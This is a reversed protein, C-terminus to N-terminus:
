RDSTGSLTAATEIPLRRQSGSTDIVFVIERPVIQAPKVKKPPQLILTFFGGRSDTHTLVADTIEDTATTYELVFDKNPIEVENALEVRASSHGDDVYKTLGKHQPSTIAKIPLGANLTVRVSIDHGARTGKPTVPPTIKSADPVQTTDPAWGTGARGTPQGPIYRPGVVMPFVFSFTADEYKLMESYRITIRIEKGPEINAVAQTFINPREQDLLSAVHGAAKAQEYIQRAQERPKIQGRIVRDGVKMVMDDVAAKAGLPFVYVAEIKDKYPNVFQQTVEVRAVFGSIEVRVATHKLPCNGLPQGKPGLARLAGETVKPLPTRDAVATAALLVVGLVAVIAHPRATM